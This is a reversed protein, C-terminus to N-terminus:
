RRRCAPETPLARHLRGITREQPETASAVLSAWKTSIARPMSTEAPNGASAGPKASDGSSSTAAAARAQSLSRSKWARMRLGQAEGAGPGRRRGSRRAM